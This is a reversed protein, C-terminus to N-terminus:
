AVGRGQPAPARTRNTVMRDHLRAVTMSGTRTFLFPLVGHVLCAAGGVLMAVGFSSAVRFHEGYTEGVSAPHETFSFRKMQWWGIESLALM